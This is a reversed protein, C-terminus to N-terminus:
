VRRASQRTQEVLPLPRMGGEHLDPRLGDEMDYRGGSNGLSRRDEQRERLVQGHIAPLLTRRRATAELRRRRPEDQLHAPRRARGHLDPHLTDSTGDCGIVAVGDPAEPLDVHWREVLLPVGDLWEFTVRGGGPWPPGGPPGAEISWQGVLAQLRERAVTNTSDDM